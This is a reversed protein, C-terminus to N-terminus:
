VANVSVSALVGFYYYHLWEGRRAQLLLGRWTSFHKGEWSFRSCKKLIPLKRNHRMTAFHSITNRTKLKLAVREKFYLEAPTLVLVIQTGLGLLSSGAQFSHFLGKEERQPIQNRVLGRCEDGPKLNNFHANKTTRSHIASALRIELCLDSSCM